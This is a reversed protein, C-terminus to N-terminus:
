HCATRLCRLEVTLTDESPCAFEVTTSNPRKTLDLTGLLEGQIPRTNWSLTDFDISSAPTGPAAGTVPNPAIVSWVEIQSIDGKTELDVNRIGGAPPGSWSVACTSGGTPPVRFRMVTSDEVSIFVINSSGYVANRLKQSLRAINEPWEYIYAPTKPIAKAAKELGLRQDPYPLKALQEDTLRTTTLTFPLLSLNFLSLCAIVI